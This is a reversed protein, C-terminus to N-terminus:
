PRRTTGAYPNAGAGHPRVQIGLSLLYPEAAGEFERIAIQNKLALNAGREKMLGMLDLRSMGKYETACTTLTARLELLARDMATRRPAPARRALESELIRSRSRDLHRLSASCAAELGRARSLLVADSASRIDRQLISSKGSVARITDRVSVYSDHIAASASDLVEPKIFGGQAAM